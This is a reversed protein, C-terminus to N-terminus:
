RDQRTDKIYDARSSFYDTIADLVKDDLKPDMFGQGCHECESNVIYDSPSEVEIDVATPQKCHPCQWEIEIHGPRHSENVGFTRPDFQGAGAEQAYRGHPDTEELKRMQANWEPYPNDQVPNPGQSTPDFGESLNERLVEEICEKILKVFNPRM